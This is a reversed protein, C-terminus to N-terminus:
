FQFSHGFDVGSGDDLHEVNMFDDISFPDAASNGIGIDLGQMDTTPVNQANPPELGEILRTGKPLANGFAVVRDLRPTGTSRGVGTADGRANMWIGNGGEGNKVAKGFSEEFLLSTEYWRGKVDAIEVRSSSALLRWWGLTQTMPVLMRNRWAMDERMRIPINPNSSSPPIPLNNPDPASLISYSYIDGTMIIQSTSQPGTTTVRELIDTVVMLDTGTQGLRIRVPDGRWIKEAGLYICNYHREEGSPISATKIRESLTYTTDIAKAAMISADVDAVGDGFRGSLLASWDVQDYRLQPNQQLYPYTCAPASWALWPKLHQDTTVVEPTASDFPHSLPQVQYAKGGSGEKVAWRRLVLGLGWASTKPRYFWVVEGTRCLFQGYRSDTLQEGGRPQPLQTSQQIAPARIQPTNNTQPPLAAPTAPKLSPSQTPPGSVSRRAPAPAAVVPNRNAVPGQVHAPQSTERKMMTSPETKIEAKVVPREEDLQVVSCMKCTCNQYDSNEDTCLWLLHPFFDAPSRYRKRPGKPYGYLYADQRDHGGGSHNKVTKAQGDAKTKIHEYLKYNEPFDWLITQQWKDEHQKGGIERLLMGGLKKRWDIHKPDDKEILRYFDCQGQENPTRDLQAETPGNRLPRGKQSVIDHGDSKVAFIPWFQTLPQTM